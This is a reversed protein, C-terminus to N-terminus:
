EVYTRNDFDEHNRLWRFTHPAYERAPPSSHLEARLRALDDPTDVDYWTPLLAVRLGLTDANRLTDTLACASSWAVTEFLGPVPQKLGILYYGGDETPGLVMDVEETRLLEFAGSLWPLPLTPSDTGIMVLPSFRQGSAAQLASLMRAGLDAGQQPTWLMDSPLLAELEGRGDTPAYAIMVAPGCGAARAVVDKLFSAALSAAEESRLPPCLRTKVQNARPAKAMVILVPEPAILNATQNANM